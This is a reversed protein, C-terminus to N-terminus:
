LKKMSKKVNKSLKSNAFFAFNKSEGIDFLVVGMAGPVGGWGRFGIYFVSEYKLFEKKSPALDFKPRWFYQM